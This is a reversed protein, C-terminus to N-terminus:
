NIQNKFANAKKTAMIITTHYPDLIIKADPSSSLSVAAFVQSNFTTIAKIKM